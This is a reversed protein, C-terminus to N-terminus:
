HAEFWNQGVGIDVKVPVELPLANEMIERIIPQILDLEDRTVEFILEDHIQLIMQSKLQRSQFERHLQIMALKIMDAASGQIPTNIATREAYERINRSKAKIDPLPRRRGYLTKVFGDDRAQEITNEIFSLVGPYTAFYKDIFAKAKSVTLNLANALGYATQGYVIGFNTTKATRRMEPTVEGLDCGFVTAATRAHIDEDNAFAQRLATDGAFHALIRLEIQSYDAAVLFDFGPGPVFGKRIERGLETRVPINQLGPDSTSLRGTPTVTQNFSTHIRGTKPHIMKPLAEVYTGNLKTLERYDLLRAPLDHERALEELVEASTSPEGKPTKKVVPLQLKDFFIERLQKTSNINFEEDALKYIQKELDQLRKVLERNMQQLFNPDISVGVFEMQTLVEVLPMEIDHFLRQLDQDLKPEIYEKLRLTFDSDAAGYEVAERIAVEAFNIQDRGKGVLDEYNSMKHGLLEVVLDKLGHQRRVPDYVWHATMTDYSYPNVAIGVANKLVLADYKINHAIKAIDPDELIPKLLPWVQDAPLNGKQLKPEAEFLTQQKPNERKEIHWLPIYWAEGPEIAFSIGVPKAWMAQQHTTELDFAFGKASKLKSVLNDLKDLTDVLHYKQEILPQENGAFLDGSQPAFRDLWSRFHLRKCAEYMQANNIPQRKLDDIQIAMPVHTDITVLQKSLKILDVNLPNSLFARGRKHSLKEPAALIEDLSGHIALLPGATKEGVGDVGPVNDSTDGIMALADIVQEPKVGFKDVVQDIGILEDDKGRIGPKIMKVRDSVLQMFDKDATYLTVGFGLAEAKKALTGIVDDAEYGPIEVIPANMATLMQRIEPIQEYLEPPMKQRTAKYGEYMDHRFTAGAPDFVIAFYDPDHHDLLRLIASIFGYVAGTPKGDASLNMKQFAFFMRYALAHGDVLFLTKPSPM